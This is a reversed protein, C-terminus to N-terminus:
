DENRSNLKILYKLKAQELTEFEHMLIFDSWKLNAADVPSISYFKALSWVMYM